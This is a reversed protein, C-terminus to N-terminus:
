LNLFYWIIFDGISFAIFYETALLFQKSTTGNSGKSTTISQMQQSTTTGTTGTTTPITIPTSPSATIPLCQYYYSNIFTCQCSSVCTTGGTWGIGGCQGYIPILQGSTTLTTTIKSILTSQPNTLITTQKTTVTSMQSSKSTSKLTSTKLTTLTATIKSSQTTTTTVPQPNATVPLCQYYYPNVIM